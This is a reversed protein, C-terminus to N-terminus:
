KRKKALRKDLITDFDKLDRIFYDIKPLDFIGGFILELDISSDSERSPETLFFSVNHLLDNYRKKLDGCYGGAKLISYKREIEAWKEKAVSLKKQENLYYFDIEKKREKAVIRILEKAEETYDETYGKLEKNYLKIFEEIPMEKYHKRIEEKSAYDNM